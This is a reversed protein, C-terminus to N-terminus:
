SGQLPETKKARRTLWVRSQVGLDKLKQQIEASCKRECDDVPNFLDERHIILMRLQVESKMNTERRIHFSADFPGIEYRTPRFETPLALRAIQQLKKFLEQCEMCGPDAKVEPLHQAYLDLEFGVQIKKSQNYEFYPLLEWCVKHERVWEKLDNQATM